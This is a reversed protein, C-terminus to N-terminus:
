PRVYPVVQEHQPCTLDQASGYASKHLAIEHWTASLEAYARAHRPHRQRWVEFRARDEASVDDSNLRAIWESAQSEASAVTVSRDDNDPSRVNRVFGFRSAVSKCMEMTGVVARMFGIQKERRM